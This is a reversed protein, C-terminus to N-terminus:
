FKAVAQGHFNPFFGVSALVVVIVCLDVFFFAFV